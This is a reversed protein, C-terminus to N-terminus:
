NEVTAQLSMNEVARKWIKQTTKSVVDTTKSV